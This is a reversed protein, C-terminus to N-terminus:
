TNYNIRGRKSCIQLTEVTNSAYLKDHSEIVFQTQSDFTTPYKHLNRRIIISEILIPDVLNESDTYVMRTNSTLDEINNIHLALMGLLKHFFQLLTTIGNSGLGYFNFIKGPCDGTILCGLMRQLTHIKKKDGLMLDSIYQEIKSTDYNSGKWKTLFSSNNNSQILEGNRLNVSGNRAPFYGSNIM